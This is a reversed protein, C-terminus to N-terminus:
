PIYVYIYQNGGETKVRLKPNFFRVYQNAVWFFFFLFCRLFEINLEEPHAHLYASTRSSLLRWLCISRAKILNPVLLDRDRSKVKVFNFWCDLM